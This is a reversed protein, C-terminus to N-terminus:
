KLEFTTNGIEYTEAFIAVKYVGVMAPETKSKKDWHLCVPTETNKYEVDKSATYEIEKGQFEFLYPGDVKQTVVVGDPRIIRIYVTKLGPDVLKNEGLSFCVKVREVKNAKDTDRARGSGTFRVTSASINFATLARADNIKEILVEKDKTLTRTRDQEKAYQQRIKENEETLEKNVTYLSDMQHVYGQTIKRLLELKKNAKRYEWKYNLLENIEKANAQIISDKLSLSDALSGYEMKISDHAKMLDELEYQILIKEQEKEQVLKQYEGIKPMFYILVGIAVILFLIALVIWIKSGKNQPQGSVSNTKTPTQTM